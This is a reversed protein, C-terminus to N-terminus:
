RMASVLTHASSRRGGVFSPLMTLLNSLTRSSPLLWLMWPLSAGCQVQEVPCKLCGRGPSHGQTGPVSTGVHQATLRPASTHTCWTKGNSHSLASHCPFSINVPFAFHTSCTFTTLYFASRIHPIRPSRASRHQPCSLTSFIERTPLTCNPPNKSFPNCEKARGCCM